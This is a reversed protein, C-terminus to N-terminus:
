RSSVPREPDNRPRPCHRVVLRCLGSRLRYRRFAPLGRVLTRAPFFTDADEPSTYRSFEIEGNSLEVYRRLKRQIEYRRRRQLGGLYEEFSGDLEVYYHNNTAPVYRIFRQSLELRSPPESVPHSPISIVAQHLLLPIIAATTEELPVKIRTVHSLLGLGEFWAEHFCYEGFTFRLRSRAPVWNAEAAAKEESEAAPRSGRDLPM